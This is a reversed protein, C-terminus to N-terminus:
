PPDNPLDTRTPVTKPTTVVVEAPNHMTVDLKADGVNSALQGRGGGDGEARSVHAVLIHISAQQHFRLILFYQVQGPIRDVRYTWPGDFTQM